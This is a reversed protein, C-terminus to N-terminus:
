VLTKSFILVCIMNMLKKKITVTHSIIHFFLKSGPLDCIVIHCMHMAHQMELAVFVCESYVIIIVKGSCCHNCARTEINHQVYM